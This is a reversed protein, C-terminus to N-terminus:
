KEFHPPKLGGQGGQAAAVASYETMGVEYKEHMMNYEKVCEKLREMAQEYRDQLSYVILRKRDGPSLDWVHSEDIPPGGTINYPILKFMNNETCKWVIWEGNDLEEFFIPFSIQLAGAPARCIDGNDLEEFFIPISIEESPSFDCDYEDQAMLRESQLADHDTESEGDATSKSPFVKIDSKPYDSIVAVWNKWAVQLFTQIEQKLELDKRGM